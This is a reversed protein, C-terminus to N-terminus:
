YKIEALVGEAKAASHPARLNHEFKQRSNVKAQGKHKNISPVFMPQTETNDTRLLVKQQDVTAPEVGELSHNKMYDEVTGM